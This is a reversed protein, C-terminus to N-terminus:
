RKSKQRFPVPRAPKGKRTDGHPSALRREFSRFAELADPVEYARNRRAASLPRVVGAQVLREVALNVSQFSTKLNAAASTVTFVPMGILSGLLRDLASGKRVTGLRERWANERRAAGESFSRVEECARVCSGAFFSLWENIAGRAQKDPQGGAFRMSNLGAIYSKPYTALILSVPPVFAELLGRRRFILHILARGTRGNGDVFPHITEFQAHALAAQQVPSVDTRNCYAVLDDLLGEVYEPAPPVHVAGLPNYSNGGIWNQVERTRGAYEALPTSGLLVRHIGMLDAITFTAREGARDLAGRLAKINGVIETAVVDAKFTHPEGENLEAQMLRKSGLHLGEIFSSSIAEARLLFRSLGDTEQLPGSGATTELLAREARSIDAVVDTELQIDMGNLGVPVYYRYSGGCREARTQGQGEGLWMAEHYYGM